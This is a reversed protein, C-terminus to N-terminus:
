PPEASAVFAVACRPPLLDVSRDLTEQTTPPGGSLLGQERSSLESLVDGEGIRALAHPLLSFPPRSMLGRERRAIGLAIVLSGVAFGSARHGEVFGVKAESGGWRDILAEGDRLLEAHSSPRRRRDDAYLARLEATLRESTPATLELLVDLFAGLESGLGLLTDIPPPPM